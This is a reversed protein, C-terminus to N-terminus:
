KHRLTARHERREEATLERFHKRDSAPMRHGNEDQDHVHAGDDARNEDKKKM